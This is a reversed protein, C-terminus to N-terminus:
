NIEITPPRITSIRIQIANKGNPLSAIADLIDFAMRSNESEWFPRTAQIAKDVDDTTLSEIAEKEATIRSVALFARKVDNPDKSSLMQLIEPLHQAAIKSGEPNLTLNTIAILPYPSLEEDSLMLAFLPIAEIADKSIPYSASLSAFNMLAFRKVNSDNSKLLGKANHIANCKELFLAGPFTVSIVGSLRLGPVTLRNENQLAKSLFASISEATGTSILEKYGKNHAIATLCAAALSPVEDPQSTLHKAILPVLQAFTAFSINNSLFSFTLRLAMSVVHMDQSAYCHQFAKIAGQTAAVEKFTEPSSVITSLISL